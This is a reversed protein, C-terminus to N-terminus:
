NKHKSKELPQQNIVTNIFDDIENQVDTQEKDDLPLPLPKSNEEPLGIEKGNLEPFDDEKDSGKNEEEEEPLFRRAKNWSSTNNTFEIELKEILKILEDIDPREDPNPAWCKNILNVWNEPVAEDNPVTPRLHEQSVKIIIQIPQTINTFEGYPRLYQGEICRYTLEWLLIGFAYIDSKQTTIQGLFTEPPCYNMTGRLQYMTSMESHFRSLGFDSVKLQWDDNILFNMSKLDRHIIPPNHKHLSLLGDAIEKSFTFVEKWGVEISVDNLLDYLSGGGCYEMVICPTKDMSAGFFNVIHPGSCTSLVQLEHKLDETGNSSSRDMVKIACKQSKYYGLFVDGSTGAGLREAFELESFKIWEFKM